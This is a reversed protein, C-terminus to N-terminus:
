VINEQFIYYNGKNKVLLLIYLYDDVDSNSRREKKLIRIDIDVINENPFYYNFSYNYSEIDQESMSKYNNKKSFFRLFFYMIKPIEIFM